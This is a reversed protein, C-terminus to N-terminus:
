TVLGNLRSSSIARTRATSRRVPLSTRSIAGAELEGVELEVVVGVLHPAAAVRISSM